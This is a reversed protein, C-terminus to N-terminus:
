IKSFFSSKSQPFYKISPSSISRPGLTFVGTLPLVKAIYICRLNNLNNKHTKKDQRLKDLIPISKKLNSYNIISNKNLNQELISTSSLQDSHIYTNRLSSYIQPNKGGSIIGDQLLLKSCTCFTENSITKAESIKM